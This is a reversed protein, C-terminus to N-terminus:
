GRTEGPPAQGTTAPEPAPSNQRGAGADAGIGLASRGLLVVAAAGSRLATRGM